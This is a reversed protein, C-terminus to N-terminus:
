PASSQIASLSCLSCPSCARASQVAFPFSPNSSSQADTDGFSVAREIAVNDTFSFVSSPMLWNAGNPMPYRSFEM